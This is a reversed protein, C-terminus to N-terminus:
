CWQHLYVPIRIEANHLFRDAALMAASFITLSSSLPSFSLVILLLASSIALLAMPKALMAFSIRLLSALLFHHCNHYISLAKSSMLWSQRLMHDHATIRNKERSYLIIMLKFSMFLDRHVLQHIPQFLPM